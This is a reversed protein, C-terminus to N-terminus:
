FVIIILKVVNESETRLTLFESVKKSMDAIFVGYNKLHLHFLSVRKVHVIDATIQRFVVFIAAEDFSNNKRCVEIRVHYTPIM